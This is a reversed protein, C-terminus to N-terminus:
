HIVIDATHPLGVSKFTISFLYYAISQSFYIKVCDISFLKKISGSVLFLAIYRSEKIKVSAESISTKYTYEIKTNEVLFPYELKKSFTKTKWLIQKLTLTNFVNLIKSIAM